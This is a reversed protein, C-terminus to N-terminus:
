LVIRPNLSLRHARCWSDLDSLHSQLSSTASAIPYLLGVASDDVHERILTSDDAPLSPLHFPAFLLTLNSLLNHLLLMEFFNLTM